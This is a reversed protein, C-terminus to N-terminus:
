PAGIVVRTAPVTAVIALDSGRQVTAPEWAYDGATAVRALYRLRTGEKVPSCQGFVIRQGDIVDPGFDGSELGGVDGADEWAVPVLGSPVYDTVEWCEAATSRLTPVLTVRVMTGPDIRGAPVVTRVLGEAASAQPAPVGLPALWSAAVVLKGSLPELEIRSRQDATLQLTSSEGPGLDVVHREGDVTWAFSAPAAPTYPLMRRVYGVQELVVLDTAPPNAAVYTSLAEAVPDGVGAAVEALLATDVSIEDSTTGIRLRTWPGRSEGHGDLLGRELALAWEKDGYAEAALAAYLQERSSLGTTARLASIDDSVPLGLAAMGAIALIRVERSADASTRTYELAEVLDDTRVADPAAISARAALVPNPGSWPLLALGAVTTAPPLENEDEDYTPTPKTAPYRTVDAGPPLDAEDWGFAGILLSRAARQAVAADARAPEVFALGTLLDVFRGRGADTFTYRTPGAGGPLGTGAALDTLSSRQGVLRTDEVVVPRRLADALPAGTADAHGPALAEITIEHTGTVLATLPVPIPTFAVGTARLGSIGLSPASVAIEVPDGPALASGYARVVLTPKDGALYSEAIVVDAFFPLSVPVLVQGEGAELGGTLATASVHWSTLDDPLDFATHALGSADTEVLRFLVSDRFDDRVNGGTADGGEGEGPVPVPVQHTATFRLIGSTVGGYLSELPHEVSAGGMAFLKEDIGRLVVAAAVPAGHEDSVRATLTVTDGPRYTRADTSLKVTLARDRTDFDLWTAAKPAYTAGTFRVGVVFIRPVDAERFTRAFRPSSSVYADRLGRQAVIYLYRNKGGSPAAMGNNVISMSVRDGVSYGHDSVPAFQPGQEARFAAVMRIGASVTRTATRGKPDKTTLVVEYEHTAEPVALRFAFTGDASTVVSRVGVLRRRTSYEYVPVVKKDVYDYTREVLRRVPILETVRARVQRGSVPKGGARGDYTGARLEREIRTLDVHRVPGDVILRRGKLAADADITYSSPFLLVEASGSIDAEESPSRVGYSMSWPDEAGADPTSKLTTEFSGRADTTRSPCSDEEDCEEVLRLGAVPQDDFFRAVTTAVVSDGAVVVVHDTSVSIRYLPKRIDGVSIWRRAAVRGDVLAEIYYEGDPVDSLALTAAFAGTAGPEASTQAVPPATGEAPVIRLAVAHPVGRDSRRQLQGWANVTDTARYLSRDASLLSWWSEDTLPEDKWWEGRYIDTDDTVGLPVLVSKGSPATVTLVQPTDVITGDEARTTQPVLASPTSAVMLGDADTTGVSQGGLVDVSAGRVPGGSATDNAWVVTRDTLVSVWASVETVQLLAQADHAPGIDVLYWGRPLPAPLTVLVDGEESLEGLRQTAQVVRTLGSTELAPTSAGAWSPHRLYAVLVEAAADRSPYRYVSVDLSKPVQSPESDADSWDAVRLGVVPREGPSTELVPRDARVSWTRGEAAGTTTTEFQFVVDHELTVDSGTRGLGSRVTVTYLTAPELRDPVFVQTRGSREFRGPVRPAISFFPEMDVVGDQDFTLEVGATLPVDTTRDGPITEVPLIPARARFVWAAELSGAASLLRARYVTGADLAARPILRVSGETSARTAAGAVAFDVPPDFTLRSALEVPDTAGTSTLTFGTGVAVGAADADDAVLTAPLVYPSLNAAVWDEPGDAPSPPAETGATPVASPVPAPAPAVQGVFLMGTILAVIALSAAALLWGSRGRSSGGHANPGGTM